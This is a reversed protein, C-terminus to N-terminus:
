THETEWDLPWLKACILYDRLSRPCRFAMMPLDKLCTEIHIIYLNSILNLECTGEVQAKLHPISHLRSMVVVHM